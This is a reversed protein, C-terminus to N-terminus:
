RLADPFRVDEPLFNRRLRPSRIDAELANIVDQSLDGKLALYELITVLQAADVYRVNKLLKEPSLDDFKKALELQKVAGLVIGAKSVSIDAAEDFVLENEHGLGLPMLRSHWAFAYAANFSEPFRLFTSLISMRMIEYQTQLTRMDM